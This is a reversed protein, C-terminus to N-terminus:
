FSRVTAMNRSHATSKCIGRGCLKEWAPDIIMLLLCVFTM